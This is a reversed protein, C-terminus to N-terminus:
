ALGKEMVRNLADLVALAATQGLEAETECSAAGLLRLARGEVVASLRTVVVWGDFARVAKVGLLEARLWDGAAASAAGLTGAAAARLRGQHTELGEREQEHHQGDWELRVRMRCHGDLLTQHRFSDFRLRKRLTAGM